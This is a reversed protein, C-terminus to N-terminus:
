DSLIAFLLDAKQCEIRGAREEVGRCFLQRFFSKDVTTKLTYVNPSTLDGFYVSGREGSQLTLLTLMPGSM